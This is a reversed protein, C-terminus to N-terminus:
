LLPYSMTSMNFKLIFGAIGKLCLYGLPCRDSVQGGVHLFDDFYNSHNKLFLANKLCLLEFAATQNYGFNIGTLSKSRKKNSSVKMIIRDFIFLSDHLCWEGMILRHSM